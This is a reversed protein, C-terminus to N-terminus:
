FCGVAFHLSNRAHFFRRMDLTFSISSTMGSSSGEEIFPITVKKNSTSHKKLVFCFVYGKAKIEPVFRLFGAM